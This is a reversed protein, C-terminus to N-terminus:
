KKFAVVNNYRALESIIEQRLVPPLSIIAMVAEQRLHEDSAADLADTEAMESKIARIQDVVSVYQRQLAAYAQWSQSAMANSMALRLDKAQAEFLDLPTSPMDAEDNQQEPIEDFVADKRYADRRELLWAAAKWDKESANIVRELLFQQREHEAKKVSQLFQKHKDNKRTAERGKRFWNYITKECVGVASAAAKYTCGKRIAECFIQRKHKDLM